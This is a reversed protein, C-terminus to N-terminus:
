LRLTQKGMCNSLLLGYDIARDPNQFLKKKSSIDTNIRDNMFPSLQIFIYNVLVFFFGYGVNAM